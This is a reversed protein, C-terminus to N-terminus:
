RLRGTKDLRSQCYECYQEDSDKHGGCNPCEEDESGEEDTAWVKVLERKGDADVQLVDVYWGSGKTRRLGMKALEQDITGIDDNNDEVVEKIIKKLQKVTIKM